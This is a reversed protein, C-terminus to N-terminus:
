RSPTCEVSSSSAVLAGCEDSMPSSPSKWAPTLPANSVAEAGEEETLLTRRVRARERLTAGLEDMDKSRMGELSKALEQPSPKKM